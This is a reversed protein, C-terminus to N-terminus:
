EESEKLEEIIIIEEPNDPFSRKWFPTISVKAGEIGPYASVVNNIATKPLGALDKTLKEADYEWILLPKGKLNFTLAPENAIVSNSTTGSTYAFTLATPDEVRVPGGSYTAVAEKALFAGFEDAKFLPIQLIAQEKITVLDNGYEVAPLQNYTIAVAGPFTVFGSPKETEIRKLLDDRLKVQLAQRATALESDDIQFQQGDFGGTFPARNEAYIAKYLDGLGSEQFGPVDFRTGAALNYGEGVEDAFVEAQITGPVNNVAGPVVVSEKIRFIKGDPSRFRTNTILREAGPTTKIIEITGKAQEKKEIQGSAKVQSESTSEITMVEYSLSGERKDPYATFESSINPERHVPYVTLETKGLLASLGFAGGVIVVFLVAAIILRKNSKKTGDEITITPIQEREMQPEPRPEMVPPRSTPAVQPRPRRPEAPRIDQLNWKQTM